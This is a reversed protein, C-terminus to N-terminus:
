KPGIESIAEVFDSQTAQADKNTPFKDVILRSVVSNIVGEIDAGSYNPTMEALQELDVDDALYGNEKMRKTHVDFIEVRADRDPLGIEIQVEFRGPRMLAPDISSLRNTIGIIIVNDLKNPGDMISLLQNVMKTDLKGANTDSETRKGGISDFEDFIYMYLKKGSKDEVADKFVDRLNSESQGVWKNLLTASDVIIPEECGLRKAISTAMLTKGTGPPGYLIVGKVHRGGLKAFTEPDLTRTSFVRRFLVDFKSDLGGIGISGLNAEDKKVPIIKTDPTDGFKSTSWTDFIFWLLIVVFIFTPIIYSVYVSYNVSVYIYLM